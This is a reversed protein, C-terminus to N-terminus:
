VYGLNKLRDEVIEDSVDEQNQISEGAYIEPREGKEILLWPVEVLEPTYIGSPHGWEKIPIPRSREGVMNGHDATIAIKGSIGDILDEITELVLRLNRYYASNIEELPINIKGRMQLGWLNFGNSGNGRIEHGITELQTNIFPYHPQLYHIIHRKNSYEEIKRKAIKTVDSPHVTGLNEDWLNSDWINCVEYFGANIGSQYKHFQPNATTYITDLFTKNNFNGYLFEETNSGRSIKSSFKGGISCSKIFMDKRCADLIILVDWDEDMIKIGKKNYERGYTINYYRRNLERCALNPHKAGIRLYDLKDM